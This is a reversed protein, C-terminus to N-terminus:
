EYAKDCVHLSAWKLKICGWDPIILDAGKMTVRCNFAKTKTGIGRIYRPALDYTDWQTWDRAHHLVGKAHLQHGNDSLLKNEFLLGM